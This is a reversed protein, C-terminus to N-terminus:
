LGKDNQNNKSTCVKLSFCIVQNVNSYVSGSAEQTNDTNKEKRDPTKMTSYHGKEFKPWHFDQLCGVQTLSMLNQLCNPVLTSIVQDFKTPTINREVKASQEVLM